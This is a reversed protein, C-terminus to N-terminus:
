NILQELIELIYGSDPVETAQLYYNYGLYNFLAYEDFFNTNWKVKVSNIEVTESCIEAYNNLFDFDTRDDTIYFLLNIGNIDIIKEHLCVVEGSTNLKYQQKIIFDIKDYWDFYLINLNNQKAYQELTLDSDIVFYDGEKCYRYNNAPKKNIPLLIVTITILVIIFLLLACSIILNKKNLNIAKNIALTNNSNPIEENIEDETKAEIKKWLKEKREVDQKEILRHFDQEKSM